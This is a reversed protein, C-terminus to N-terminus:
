LDKVMRLVNTNRLGIFRPSESEQEMGLRRYLRQGGKNSAAVDLALRQCGAARATDCTAEFLMTGIGQGRQDPDVALARIYFDGPPVAAMFSFMRRSLKAMAWYRARGRAAAALPSSAFTSGVRGSYASCMAVPLGNSEVMTVFQYSLDHNPEIFAGAVLREADSGLALRYWGEQAQDLFRAFARGDGEGAVAPRTTLGSSASLEMVGLRTNSSIAQWWLLWVVGVRVVPM